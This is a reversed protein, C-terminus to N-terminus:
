YGAAELSADAVLSAESIGFLVFRSKLTNMLRTDPRIYDQEILPMSETTSGMARLPVPASELEEWGYTTKLFRAEGAAQGVGAVVGFIAGTIAAREVGQGLSVDHEGVIYRDTVNSMFQNFADGASTVAAGFLAYVGGRIAFQLGRSVIEATASELASGLVSALGGTVGGIVAGVVGNVVYGGWFRGGSVERHTVSYISVNLGAGLLAGVGVAALPTAAGGSLVIATGIALITLGILLGVLWDAAHGTPDVLNIPNNLEFAFRNLVNARLLDHAGPQTDPTLFRGIQPDYYRAGFYYLGLDADWQRQEYKPLFDSGGSIILPQGYGSYAVRTVVTGDPGFAHTNSGKFDRRFYLVNTESGSSTLAAATGRDDLLYKTATAAGQSSRAVQYAPDIYLVTDGQADTQQLLRGLYDSVMERVTVDNPTSVRQLCGLGDYNFHLTTGNVTRTQTRGCADPTADYVQQGQATGSLPFHAQYTYSVGDKGVLNGSADYDYAGTAFGPVMATKLRRNVYTFTQSQCSGTNDRSQLLQNLLDYTYSFNLVAGVSGTVVEDYVQGSPNYTYNTVVGAGPLIGQGYIAQGAKGWPSYYELPYDTRAGDLAQTILHSFAYRRTLVSSDPFTQQVTRHQPDFVSQTVFPKAESALTLTTLSTNGYKDYGFDFQSQVAQDSTQVVVRTLRGSGNASADDYTFAITRGDSLGQSTVRGLNDYAFTTTQQAADTQQTLWGTATNYTYTMAKITPDGTTNQDPNDLTQRRNLSDYTMTNSVGQPNTTTPPDTACMLRAIPDYAFQTTANDGKPDVTVQRVQDQGNYYHHEFVEVYPTDSGAASTMTVISGSSYVWTTTAMTTGDAGAPVNRTLPRGLVDYTTLTACPAEAVVTTPSFFPVPKDNSDYNTLVVVNGAQQGSQRVTERERGRGDAYSQNWIIDRTTDLPFSQLAQVQSYLGGEGDDLYDISELTVVTATQFAQRLEPSGTVLPTVANADSAGHVSPVPGQRLAKRGFADLSTIWIYGNADTRAAEVNFRPDYGYTVVLPVSQQNNPTTTRMLFTHYDPDYDYHTVLNGPKTESTRNGFADYGYATTLYINHVNDWQGQTALNYTAATYTRMELHYDGPLFQTIDPDNANATDKAYRLFGLAWGDLLLDNQYLRHQYVVEAPYLPTGTHPDIYGLNAHLTENGYDDYAYTQGLAYDFRDAGYDYQEIHSATRLVELVAPNPGTAGRARVLATYDSTTLTLLLGSENHPVRPDTAYAGDAEIRTSALTGTYPFDQNYTKITRRGSEQQLNSVTQFGQWGRGSLDLRAGSYAMVSTSQYTFRNHTPDNSETYQSVVYTARGLVAQIPFQAPTLPNPYRCGPAAPFASTDAATYVASDSLPAYALTVSGGLANTITTVLDPYPGSSTYPVVRLQQNEDYSARILDAKGDGNVDGPFFSALTVTTGAPGADLPPLARYAGAPSARFVTFMLRNDGSIWKGLLATLGSGDVDMPYLGNATLTQNAFTSDPGAVFGGAANCLFTTLHLTTGSPGPEQWIQLLDQVGDGNVDVPLFAIQNQLSLTGLNSDVRTAFAADDIATSVSIYATVMISLDSRQWVRALDMMGDGNVDMPWFALLATPSAPDETASVIGATFM